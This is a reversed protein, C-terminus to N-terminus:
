NSPTRNLPLLGHTSQRFNRTILQAGDDLADLVDFFLDFLEVFSLALDKLFGLAVAEIDLDNALDHAQALLVLLLALFM